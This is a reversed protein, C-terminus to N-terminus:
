NSGLRDQGHLGVAVNNTCWVLVYKNKVIEFIMSM